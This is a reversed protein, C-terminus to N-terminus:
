NIKRVSCAAHDAVPCPFCRQRYNCDACAPNNNFGNGRFSNLSQSNHWYEDLSAITKDEPLFRCPHPYGSEDVYFHDRGATCGMGVGYNSNKRIVNGGMIARLPSFCSDVTVNMDKNSDIWVALNEMEAQSPVSDADGCFGSIILENINQNRLEEFVSIMSEVNASSVICKVSVDSVNSSCLYHIVSLMESTKYMVIVFGDAGANVLESIREPEVTRELFVCVNMKLGKAHRILNAAETGEESGYLHIRRVNALSLMELWETIRGRAQEEGTNWATMEVYIPKDYADFFRHKPWPSQELYAKVDTIRGDSYNLKYYTIHTQIFPDSDPFIRIWRRLAAAKEPLCLGAKELRSIMRDALVPHRVAHYIEFGTKECIGESSLDVNLAIREADTWPFIAKELLSVNGNWGARVLFSAIQNWSNFLIVVRLKECEGPRAMSGIQKIKAGKPLNALLSFFPKRLLESLEEGCFVNLLDNWYDTNDANQVQDAADWTNLFVCPVIEGVRKCAEYDMELWKVAGQYYSPDETCLIYDAYREPNGLRIELGSCFSLLEAYQLEINDLVKYFDEDLLEPMPHRRLHSIFYHAPLRGSYEIM